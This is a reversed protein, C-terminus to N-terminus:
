RPNRGAQDIGPMIKPALPLTGYLGIVADIYNKLPHDACYDRLFRMQVKTDGSMDRKQVGPALNVGTMFGQAWAFFDNEAQPFDRYFRGFEACSLTGMGMAVMPEAAVPMSGLVLALAAASLRKIM